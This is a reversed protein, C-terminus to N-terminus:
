DQPYGEIKNKDTFKAGPVFLSDYDSRKINMLQNVLATSLSDEVAMDSLSMLGLTTALGLDSASTYSPYFRKGEPFEAKHIQIMNYMKDPDDFFGESEKTSKLEPLTLPYSGFLDQLLMTGQETNKVRREPSYNRNIIEQLINLANLDSESLGSKMIADDIASHANDTNQIQKNKRKRGFM